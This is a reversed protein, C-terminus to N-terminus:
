AKHSTEHYNCNDNNCISNNSSNDNNNTNSSFSNNIDISSDTLNNNNDDHIITVTTNPRGNKNHAIKKQKKNSSDKNITPIEIRTKDNGISGSTNFMKVVVAMTCLISILITAFLLVQIFVVIIM